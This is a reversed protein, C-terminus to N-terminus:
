GERGAPARPEELQAGLCPQPLPPFFPAGFPPRKTGGWGLGRCDTWLPLVPRRPHPHGPGALKAEELPSGPGLGLALSFSHNPPVAVAATPYPSRAEWGSSRPQRALAWHSILVPPPPPCQSGPLGPCSGGSKGFICIAGPSGMSLGGGHRHSLHRIHPIAHLHLSSLRSFRPVAHLLPPSSGGWSIGVAATTM